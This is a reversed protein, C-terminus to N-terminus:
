LGNVDMMKRNNSAGRSVALKRPKRPLRTRVAPALSANPAPIHPPNSATGVQLAQSVYYRYRRGSKVAHTPTLRQGAQTM